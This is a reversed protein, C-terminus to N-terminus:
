RPAPLQDRAVHQVDRIAELRTMIRSLRELSDVDLVAHATATGDKHTSVNLAAINSRRTPWSPPSTACWGRATGPKSACPSPSRSSSCEGWDVAVLREPEDENCCAACDARHVTVGRGRTIYGIVEDGPM